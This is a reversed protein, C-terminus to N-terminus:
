PALPIACEQGRGLRGLARCRLQRAEPVLLDAPWEAIVRDAIAIAHAPDALPGAYLRIAEVLAIPSWTADLLDAIALCEAIASRLKGEARLRRAHQWRQKIAPSAAASRDPGVGRSPTTDLTVRPLTAPTPDVPAITRSPSPPTTTRTHSQEAPGTITSPPSPNSPSSTKSSSAQSPVAETARMSGNSAAPLMPPASPASTEPAPSALATLVPTQDRGRARPRDPPWSAGASVRHIDAGVHVEVTGEDVQVAGTGREVALSYVTGQALAIVGGGQLTLRHAHTGPWLRATVQGREVEITTEDGGARVIRYVTGPEVVIAVREGIRVAARPPPQSHPTLFLGAALAVVVVAAIALTPALWSPRRLEDPTRSWSQERSEDTSRELERVYAEAADRRVTASRARRIVADLDVM